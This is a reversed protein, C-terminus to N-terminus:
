PAPKILCLSLVTSVVLAFQFFIVILGFVGAQALEGGARNLVLGVIFPLGCNFVMGFALTYLPGNIGARGFRATGALALTSGLWCVAAAVAAAPLAGAGNLGYAIAAVPLFFLLMALSLIAWSIGFRLPPLKEVWRVTKVTTKDMTAEEGSV